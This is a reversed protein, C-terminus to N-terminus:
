DQKANIFTRSIETLKRFSVIKDWQKGLLYPAGLYKGWIEPRLTDILKATTNMEINIRAYVKRFGLRELFDNITTPHLLTRSGNTIYKLNRKNLYHETISYFLISNPSYRHYAPDSKAVNISVYDDMVRCQAFAAMQGNVYAGWPEYGHFSAEAEIKKQFDSKTPLNKNDTGYSKLSEYFIKYADQVIESPSLCKIICKKGGLIVDRRAGKSPVKDLSYDKIDCCTWWWESPTALDWQDTWKAFFLGNDKLAKQIESRDLDNKILHPGSLPEMYLGLKNWPIGCAWIVNPYISALAILDKSLM